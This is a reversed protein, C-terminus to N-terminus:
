VADFLPGRRVVDSKIKKCLVTRGNKLTVQPQDMAVNCRLSTGQFRHKLVLAEVEESVPAM